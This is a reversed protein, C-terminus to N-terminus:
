VEPKFLIGRDSRRSKAAAGTRPHRPDLMELVGEFAM